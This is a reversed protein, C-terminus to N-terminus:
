SPAVEARRVTMRARAIDVQPQGVAAPLSARIGSKDVKLQVTDPPIVKCASRVGAGCRLNLEPVPAVLVQTPAKGALPLSTLIVSVKGRHADLVALEASDPSWGFESAREHQDGEPIDAWDRDLEQASLPFLALGVDIQENPNNGEGQVPQRLRPRNEQPSRALDYLRYQDEWREIGHSPYFKSFAIYRSDPSISPAYAWFRDVLQGSRIDFIAVSNALAGNTWGTVILRGQAVRVRHIQAAEQPVSFRTEHGTATLAVQLARSRDASIKVQYGGQTFSRYTANSPDFLRDGDVKGTSADITVSHASFFQLSFLAAALRVIL